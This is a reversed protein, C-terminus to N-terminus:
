QEIIVENSLENIDDPKVPFHRALLEGVDAIAQCLMDAANGDKIGAAIDRAYAQLTEQRIKEYIGKDALVWVKHEFLSIFFLVGSEDRTKYLGKEYFATLARDQVQLELRDNPTFFRKVEPLYHVLWGCLATLVLASVVFVWLAGSWFLETAALALLSGILGGALIQGEPYADSQDVVMVAVEGATRREVARVADAIRKKDAETFFTEAKM